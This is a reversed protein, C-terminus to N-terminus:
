PTSGGRETRSSAVVGAGPGHKGPNLRHPRRRRSSEIAEILGDLPGWPTRSPSSSSDKLRVPLLQVHDLQPGRALQVRHPRGSRHHRLHEGRDPGRRRGSHAEGLEVRDGAIDECAVAGARREQAVLRQGRRRREGADDAQRHVVDRQVADGRGLRQVVAVQEADVGAGGEVAPDAVRRDRERDAGGALRVVRSTAVASAASCAPIAAATTPPRTPSMEAAIEATPRAPPHPM